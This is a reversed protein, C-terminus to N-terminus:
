IVIIFILNLIDIIFEYVSTQGFYNWNFTILNEVKKFQNHNLRYYVFGSLAEELCPM